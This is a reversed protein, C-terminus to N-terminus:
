HLTQSLAKFESDYSLLSAPSGKEILNGDGLLLVLDSDIITNLRHAITLITCGIFKNKIIEQIKQDSEPDIGATAEDFLIIRSNSILARSLSLLQREGISINQGSNKVEYDLGFKLQVDDMVKKIVKDDYQSFPDLNEKMTGNFVLPDQPILTIARRLKSLGLLAVNVGDISIVGSEIEIIRLLALFLSSKGSGTRGTIGVRLGAPIDFSLGKLVLETTPRYRMQVKYFEISPTTPWNPSKNDFNTANPQESPLNSYAKVREVSVMENELETISVLLDSLNEPLPIM